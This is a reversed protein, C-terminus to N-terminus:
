RSIPKYKIRTPRDAEAGLRRKRDAEYAEYNGEFWEVHSDGEFALIHTAIRDLFWRDHSVVVACGAFEELAEELARLTDVDLDNTPEDLLLLNAGSKLMRALHVRNREGGSLQGVHKQQDGGKFNFQGVYARSAMTRKGLEIEDLGDSIVEWVTKGDELDDRSQDVYGLKVTDGVTFSGGDPTEAGTIMRFLTTKGAGNPGIVGVIGGPPLRFSLDDILLREGFAKRLGEANIVIDGLRPGAPIHIKATDIQRENEEALMKEYANIRAKSKAQRAKPAARVWDLERSLSKVRSDEAKGEQELRKQKQELWGSYNGEYPIGAGRDLELIWGAVEDLFYRDHTITVVTGPFDHLFRQLWAVSEADLHNTPEDLLLMDPASLLLKCLAVRRKEGGSLKTVDADGQPVRLADMAIEAKREMDWGDIADIKEQLEAQEAIVENMEDDTLEEAFRASVANFRDMLEKAEGMGSLVNGTVDMSPDLEPEQALYGVKIGDAAWAEGNFETDLGAMIKLLTSKGAGNLGLVGIKAGPLFSLSINKLVEKGGPWAKSLRHMVYVYQHSSM